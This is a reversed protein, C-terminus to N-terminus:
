GIFNIDIYNRKSDLRIIKNGRSIHQNNFTYINGDFTCSGTCNLYIFLEEPFYIQSSRSGGELLTVNIYSLQEGGSNVYQHISVSDINEPFFVEITVRNGVGMFHVRSAQNIINNFISDVQQKNLSDTADGSFLIYYGIGLITLTLSFAMILVLEFSAQSKSNM